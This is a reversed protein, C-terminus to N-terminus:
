VAPNVGNRGFFEGYHELPFGVTIILWSAIKSQALTAQTELVFAVQYLTSVAFHRTVFTHLLLLSALQLGALVAILRMRDTFLQADEVVRSDPYYLRNPMNQLCAMYGIYIVPVVCQTYATLGIYENDFLLQLTQRVVRTNQQHLQNVAISRRTSAGQAESTRPQLPSVVRAAPRSGQDVSKLGVRGTGLAQTNVSAASINGLRSHSPTKLQTGKRTGGVPDVKSVFCCRRLPTRLHSPRATADSDDTLIPKTMTVSAYRDKLQTMSMTTSTRRDNNYVARAALADLLTTGADSLRHRAGSLLRIGHLESPDLREPTQLLRLTAMVLMEMADDQRKERVTLNVRAVGSRRYMDQLALAMMLANLTATVGVMAFSNASRMCLVAYLADFVDVTFVIVEPLRDELHSGYVALVNKLALDLMPLLAMLLQRLYSPAALFLTRYAPYIITLSAQAAFLQFFRRLYFARDPIDHLADRGLVCRTTFVVIVVVPPAGLVVMFPIPFVWLEAVLVDLATAVASCGVAIGLLRRGSLPLGPVWAKAQMMVGLLMALVMCSHRIWFVYNAASGEAAPRLPLCEALVVVVLPCLPTFVCVMAVRLPSVRQCYENLALSREVSYQGCHSVAFVSVGAMTFFAVLIGLFCSAFVAFGHLAARAVLVSYFIFDGLGLKISKDEQDSAGHGKPQTQYYDISQSFVSEMAPYPQHKAVSHVGYYTYLNRWLRLQHHQFGRALEDSQNPFSSNQDYLFARVQQRLKSADVPAPDLTSDASQVALLLRRIFVDEPMSDRTALRRQRITANAPVKTSAEIHADEVDAEFLLGPIPTGKEQVLDVLCRLPGMPTMVAFLDWFGLLLLLMWVFLPNICALMTVSDVEPLQALQWAVIVSTTILYGREVATPIGKQYFISLVGVLAFNYMAIALSVGDVVWHLRDCLIMVTLKSGMLGLLTASYVVSYGAFLHMCDCKYLLVIGFTLVAIFAIVLLANFFAEGTKTATSLESSDIDQYYMYTSDYASEDGSGSFFHVSVLSRGTSRSNGM